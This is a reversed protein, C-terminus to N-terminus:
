VRFFFHYIGWFLVIGKFEKAVHLCLFPINWSENVKSLQFIFSNVIQIRTLESSAQSMTCYM